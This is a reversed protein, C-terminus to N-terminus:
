QKDKSQNKGGKNKPKSGKPPSGKKSSKRQSRKKGRRRKKKEPPLEIFGTVDEYDSGSGNGNEVGVMDPSLLNEPHKGKANM